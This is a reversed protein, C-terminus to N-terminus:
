GSLICSEFTISWGMGEEKTQRGHETESINGDGYSNRSAQRSKDSRGGSIRMVRRSPPRTSVSPSYLVDAWKLPSGNRVRAPAMPEVLPGLALLIAALSNQAASTTIYRILITLSSVSNSSSSAAFRSCGSCQCSFVRLIYALWPNTPHQYPYTIHIYAYACVPTLRNMCTNSHNNNFSKPSCRARPCSNHVPTHVIPCESSESTSLLLFNESKEM